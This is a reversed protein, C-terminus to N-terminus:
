ADLWWPLLFTLSFYMKDLSISLCLSVITRLNLRSRPLQSAQTVLHLDEYGKAEGKATDKTAAGVAGGTLYYIVGDANITFGLYGYSFMDFNGSRQSPLSTLRAMVTVRKGAPDSPAFRFLYGSNGHVGYACNHPAYWVIQRWHYAM